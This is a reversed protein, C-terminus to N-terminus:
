ALNTFSGQGPSSGNGLEALRKWAALAGRHFDAVLQHDKLGPSTEVGSAVDVGAPNVELIAERVNTPNLGGALIIPVDFRAQKVIDWPATTGTGGHQGAVKADLLVASVTVNMSRFLRLQLQLTKLDDVSSVGQALWLPVPPPQFHHWYDVDTGHLQAVDLRVAQVINALEAPDPRVFVGVVQVSRPLRERLAKAHAISLSRPSPPYFNLGVTEIGISLCTDISADDTLGCIKIIPKM